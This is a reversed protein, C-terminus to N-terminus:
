KLSSIFTRLSLGLIMLAIRKGDHKKKRKNKKNGGDFGVYFENITTLVFVFFSALICYLFLPNSLCNCSSLVGVPPSV